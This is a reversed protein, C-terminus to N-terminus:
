NQWRTPRVTGALLPTNLCIASSILLPSQSAM